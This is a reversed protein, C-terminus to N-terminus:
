QLALTRKRRTQHADMTEMKKSLSEGFSKVWLWLQREGSSTAITGQPMSAADYTRDRCLM